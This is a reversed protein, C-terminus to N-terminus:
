ATVHLAQPARNLTASSRYLFRTAPLDTSTFQLCHRAGIRISADTAGGARRLLARGGDAVRWNGDRGGTGCPGARGAGDRKGDM